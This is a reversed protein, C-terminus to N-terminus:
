GELRCVKQIEHSRIQSWNLASTSSSARCVSTEMSVFDYTLRVWDFNRVDTLTRFRPSGFFGLQYVPLPWRVRICLSSSAALGLDFTHRLIWGVGVFCM